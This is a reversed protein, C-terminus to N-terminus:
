GLLTKMRDGAMEIARRPSLRGLRDLGRADAGIVVRFAGEAVAAVIQRGTPSDRQTRHM